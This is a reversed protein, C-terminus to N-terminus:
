KTSKNKSKFHGIYMHALLGFQKPAQECQLGFQFKAQTLGLGSCFYGWVLKFNLGLFLDLVREIREREREGQVRGILCLARHRREDMNVSRRRDVASLSFESLLLLSASYAKKKKGRQRTRATGLFFFFFNKERTRTPYRKQAHGHLM